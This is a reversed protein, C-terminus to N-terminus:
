CYVQSLYFQNDENITVGTGISTYISNRLVLERVDRELWNSVIEEIVFDDFPGQGSYINVDSFSAIEDSYKETNSVCVRSKDVYQLTVPLGEGSMAVNLRKNKAMDQSHRIAISSLDPDTELQGRGVEIRKQNFFDEIKKEIAPNTSVAPEIPIVEKPIERSISVPLRDPLSEEFNSLVGVLNLSLGLDPYSESITLWVASLIIVIAIIKRITIKPKPIEINKKNFNKEKPKKANQNREFKVMEKILQKTRPDTVESDIKDDLIKKANEVFELAEEDDEPLEELIPMDITFKGAREDLPRGNKIWKKLKGSLEEPDLIEETSYKLSIDNEEKEERLEKDLNSKSIELNNIAGQHKPSLRLVQNYCAIAESYQGLRFLDNGKNFLAQINKPEVELLKDYVDVSEDPMELKSYCLAKNFLVSINKPDKELIKDFTSIAETNKGLTSQFYGKNNLITLDQPEMELANDATQLAEEYRGLQSLSVTRMSLTDFHNPNNELIKDFTKLADEFKKKKYYACGQLFADKTDLLAM